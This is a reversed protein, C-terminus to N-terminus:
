WCTGFECRQACIVRPILDLSDEKEEPLDRAIQARSTREVLSPTYPVNAASVSVVVASSLCLTTILLARIM